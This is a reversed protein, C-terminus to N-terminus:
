QKVGTLSPDDFHTMLSEFNLSNIQISAEKRLELLKSAINYTNGLSTKIDEKSEQILEYEIIRDEIYVIYFHETSGVIILEKLLARLIEKNLEGINEIEDNKYFVYEDFDSPKKSDESIKQKITYADEFNSTKITWGSIHVSKIKNVTSKKIADNIVNEPIQVQPLEILHNKVYWAKYNTLNYSKEFKYVADNELDFENAADSFVQKKLARGISAITKFQAEQLPIFELWFLYDQVTFTKEVGMYTYTALISTPSFVQRVFEVDESSAFNKPAKQTISQNSSSSNINSLVDYLQEANDFSVKVKLGKMYERVFEDGKLSLVRRKEQDNIGKFKSQFEAETILPNAIRQEVLIIHYGFRSRIPTSYEGARLDFIVEAVNPDVSFYTLEGLYGALSDFKTTNYVENAIEIFNNGKKLQSYRRKAELSDSFFLQRAYLKMKSKFFAERLQLDSIDSLTDIFARNFFIDSRLKREVKDTYVEYSGDGSYVTDFQQALLQNDILLDLHNYREEGTDNKGSTRLHNIYSKTFHWGTITKNNVIAVAEEYVVQSKISKSNLVIIFIIILSKFFYKM